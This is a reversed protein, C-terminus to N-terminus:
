PKENQTVALKIVADRDLDLKNTLRGGDRQRAQEMPRGAPRRRPLHRPLDM